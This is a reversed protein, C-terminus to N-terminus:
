NNRSSKERWTKKQRKKGKSKESGGGFFTIEEPLCKSLVNLDFCLLMSPLSVDVFPFCRERLHVLAELPVDDENALLIRKKNEEEFYM